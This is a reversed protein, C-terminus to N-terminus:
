IGLLRRRFLALPLRNGGHKKVLGASQSGRTRCPNERFVRPFCRL